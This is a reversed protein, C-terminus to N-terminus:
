TLAHPPMGRNSRFVSDGAANKQESCLATLGARWGVFAANRLLGWGAHAGTVAKRESVTAADARAWTQMPGPGYGLGGALAGASLLPVRVLPPEPTCINGRRRAQARAPDSRRQSGKGHYSKNSSSVESHQRKCIIVQVCPAVLVQQAAHVPHARRPRRERAVLAVDALRRGDDAHDDLRGHQGPLDELLAVVPV